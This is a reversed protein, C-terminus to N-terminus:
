LGKLDELYQDEVTTEKWFKLKESSKVIEVALDSVMESTLSLINTRLLNDIDTELVGKVNKMVQDAVQAKTQGKFKIKEDIVAMIFYMKVKKWRMEESIEAINKDIRKQLFPKRFECFDKILDRADDYKKPKGNPMIVTLNETLSTSLKFMKIIDDDSLNAGRKLKVKFRFGSADCLDSYSVIEEDDELKDLIEIFFERDYRKKSNMYPVETITIETTGNREFIGTLTVRNDEENYSCNGKFQPFSYGLSKKIKGTKVYERTAGVVDKIDRSFINCSFGTAMGSTNNLLVYPIIPVYYQPIVIEPDSNEPSLDIDKFIKDFNEHIKASVYRPSAPVQVLRSGYSGKGKVIPFTTYWDAVMLQLAGAASTAGHAYGYASVSSALNDVKVFERQAQKLTSYLVFRQSPKLGDVFSPLARDSTVYLSYTLWEYKLIDTIDYNNM